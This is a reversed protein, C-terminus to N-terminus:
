KSCAKLSNEEFREWSRLLAAHSATFDDFTFVELTLVGSFGAKWLPHTVADLRDPPM